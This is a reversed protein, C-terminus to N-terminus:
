RGLPTRIYLRVLHRKSGEPLADRGHLMRRNDIFLSEGPQLRIRIARREQAQRVYDAFAELARGEAASAPGAVNWPVYYLEYRTGAGSLLPHRFVQEGPSGPQPLAYSVYVGRLATLENPSLQEALDSTDLLITEGGLDDQAVCYWALVAATPRDTHLALAEAQYVGPRARGLADGRLGSQQERRAPDVRVDTRLEVEGILGGLAEFEELGLRTTVRALGETQLSLRIPAAHRAFDGDRSAEAEPETRKPTASDKSTRADDRPSV